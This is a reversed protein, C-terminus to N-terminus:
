SSLLRIVAGTVQEKLIEFDLGSHSFAIKEQRLADILICSAYVKEFVDQPAAHNQQLISVVKHFYQNELESFHRNIEEDEMIMMRVQALTRSTGAYLDLYLSIWNEVFEPVQFPQPIELREFLQRSIHELYGEFAAIYIQRKDKFYCYVVGTSVGARRAIETTNTKSYGKECFLAFGADTIKQKKEMARKQVPIRLDSM